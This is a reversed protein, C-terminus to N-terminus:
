ERALISYRKEQGKIKRKGDKVSYFGYEQLINWAGRWTYCERNKKRLQLEAALREKDEAFLERGLWPTFDFRSIKEENNGSERIKSKEKESLYYISGSKSYDLLSDFYDRMQADDRLNRYINDQYSYFGYAFPNMKVEGGISRYTLIDIPLRTNAFECQKIIAQEQAHWTELDDKGSNFFFERAREFDQMMQYKEKFSYVVELADIDHRIRGRVQRITALEPSDVIVRRISEDEINIGTSWADNIFLVNISQPVEKYERVYDLLSIEKDNGFASERERPIFRQEDMLQNLPRNAGDEVTVLDDNYRSVLFGSHPIEKALRFCDKAGRTYVLAKSQNTAKLTKLYAKLSMHGCVSIENSKLNAPYAPTLDVFPIDSNNAVYEVLLQPTATIGCVFTRDRNSFLWDFVPLKDPHCLTWKAILDIEDFILLDPAHKIENGDQIFKGLQHICAVRIRGDDSDGCILDREDLEVANNYYKSLVEIKLAETPTLYLQFHIEEDSAKEYASKLENDFVYRTKGSGVDPTLLPFDSRIDCLSLDIDSDKLYVSM